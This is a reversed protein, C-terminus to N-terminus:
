WHQMHQILPLFNLLIAELQMMHMICKKKSFHAVWAKTFVQRSKLQNPIIGVKKFNLFLCKGTHARLGILKPSSLRVHRQDRRVDTWLSKRTLVICDVTKMRIKEFKCLININILARFRDFILLMPDYTDSNDGKFKLILLIHITLVICDATKM